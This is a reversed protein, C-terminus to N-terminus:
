MDKYKRLVEKILLKTKSPKGEYGEQPIENNSCKTKKEPPQSSEGRQFASKLTSSMQGNYNDGVVTIVTELRKEYGEILVTSIGNCPEWTAESESKGLYKM